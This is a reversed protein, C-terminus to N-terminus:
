TCATILGGVTVRHPPALHVAPGRVAALRKESLRLAQKLSPLAQDHTPKPETTKAGELLELYDATLISEKVQLSATHRRTADVAVPYVAPPLSFSAIAIYLVLDVPHQM